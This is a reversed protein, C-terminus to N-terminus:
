ERTDNRLITTVGIVFDPVYNPSTITAEAKLRPHLETRSRRMTRSFGTCRYVSDDRAM